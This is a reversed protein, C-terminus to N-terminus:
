KYSGHHGSEVARQAFSLCNMWFLLIISLDIVLSKVCPLSLLGDMKKCFKSILFALFFNTCNPLDTISLYFPLVFM